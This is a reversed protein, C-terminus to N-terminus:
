LSPADAPAGCPVSTHATALPYTETVGIFTPSVSSDCILVSLPQNLYLGAKAPYGTERLSWVYHGGATARVKHPGRPAGSLARGVLSHLWIRRSIMQQSM